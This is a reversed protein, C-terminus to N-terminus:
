LREKYGKFCCVSFVQSFYGAKNPYHGNQSFLGIKKPLNEDKRYMYTGFVIDWIIFAGGYNNNAESPLVSHHWRHLENTNFVYNLWGSRFDINAHQLMIVPQSIALYGLLVESPVGILMLPFTSLLFNFVYNLPHFRFNNISYLRESSHHLAHLWWLFGIRHHWRHVWYRGFEILLLAIILQGLFNLHSPFLELMSSSPLMGYVAVVCIPASYKVVPAVVGFLVISSVVDGKFDGRSRNWPIYFPLVRELVIAIALVMITSFLVVLEVNAELFRALLFAGFSTSILILFLWRSAFKKM